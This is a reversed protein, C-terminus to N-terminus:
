CKYLYIILKKKCKIIFKPLKDKEKKNSLLFSYFYTIFKLSLKLTFYLSFLSRSWAFM